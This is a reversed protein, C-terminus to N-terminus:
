VSSVMPSPRVACIGASSMATEVPMITVREFTPPPARGPRRARLEVCDRVASIIAPTAAHASPASGRCASSGTGARRRRREDDDDRRMAGPPAACPWRRRARRWAAPSAGAGGVRGLLEHLLHPHVGELHLEGGVEDVEDGADAVVQEGAHLGEAAPDRHLVADDHRGHARAVADVQRGRGVDDADGPDLHAAADRGDALHEREAVLEVRQGAGRRDLRHELEGALPDGRLHPVRGLDGARRDDVAARHEDRVERVHDGVVGGAQEGALVHAHEGLADLPDAGREDLLQDGLRSVRASTCRTSCPRSCSRTGILSRGRM